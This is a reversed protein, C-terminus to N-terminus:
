REEQAELFDSMTGEMALFDRARGMENPTLRRVETSGKLATALLIEEPELVDLVAPSHTTFLVQTDDSYTRLLDILKRLLGPHISDEPQEMLMLSRRDFLMSTVIQIIRRTGLSLNSLRFYSGAGGMQRSPMVQPTFLKREASPERLDGSPKVLDFVQEYVGIWDVVGLGGPGLISRLEDFLEPEERHMHILRMVLSPSAEGVTEHLGKWEEYDGETASRDAKPDDEFPYYRVGGFFGRVRQLHFSAPDEPPLLSTLAALGPTLKPIRIRDARGLVEVDQDERRFVPTWDMGEAVALSEVIGPSLTPNGPDPASLAYSYRVGDLDLVLRLDTRAEAIDARRRFEYPVRTPEATISASCLWAIANLVTSKGVGNRGCLGSLTTDLDFSTRACSGFNQIEVSRLM